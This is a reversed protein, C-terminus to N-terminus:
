TAGVLKGFAAADTPRGFLFGQALPCGLARLVREEAKTEVGEAVVNLGLERGLKIVAEVIARKSVSSALDRVFHRDIKIESVPFRELYLLGSYGTGFDDISLGVGLERLREFVHLLEPTDEALLSETVELTLWTPDAGSRALADSVSGVLDGHTLEVTSVNASFRLPVSRGRNTEVAFRAVECRGWHGIDLILGTEEAIGIFRDPTQLGLAANDWRLLAEAAVVRGSRLDVEPQYHFLFEGAAVARHLADTLKLRDHAALEDQPDFRRAGRLSLDKARHLATGAQHILTLASTGSTGVAFGTAFRVAIEGAPLAFRDSLSDAIRTMWRDADAHRDLRAALAFEDGGIRGLLDAGLGKLREAIQRLLSDGTDHGYSGNIAHLRAIDIDVVLLIANEALLLDTREVFAHRDPLGTLPDRHMASETQETWRAATVDRLLAVFHTSESAHDFVPFLRLANIFFSGDKRHSRMTVSASRRAAIAEELAAVQPHYRDDGRLFHWDGGIVEERRYGTISEFASNVYSIRLGPDNPEAILVGEGCEDAIAAIAHPPAVIDAADLRRNM